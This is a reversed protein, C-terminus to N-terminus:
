AATRASSSACSASAGTAPDIECQASTAHTPSCSRPRPEQLPPHGGPWAGHRAPPLGLDLYAAHAIDAVTMAKAPTGRVSIVDDVIELDDPAAELQHAAVEASRPGCSWPPSGPHRRRPDSRQPQRRDRLRLPNRQHRGPPRHRTTLRGRPARVRAPRDHDRNGPRALGFRPLRRRQREAPHPHTGARVQLSEGNRTQPEIYLGIGIGSWAAPPSVARSGDARFAEYDVM